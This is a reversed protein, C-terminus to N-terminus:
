TVVSIGPATFRAITARADGRQSRFTFAHISTVRSMRKEKSQKGDTNWRSRVRLL